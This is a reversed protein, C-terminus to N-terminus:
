VAYAPRHEVGKIIQGQIIKTALSNDIKSTLSATQPRHIKAKKILNIDLVKLDQLIITILVKLTIELLLSTEICLVILLTWFTINEVKVVLGSKQSCLIVNNQISQM